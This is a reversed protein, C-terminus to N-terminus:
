ATRRPKTSVQSLSNEDAGCFRDVGTAEWLAKSCTISFLLAQVQPLLPVPLDWGCVAKRCEALQDELM